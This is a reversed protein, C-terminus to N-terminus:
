SYLVISTPFVFSVDEGRHALATLTGEWAPPAGSGGLDGADDHSPGEVPPILPEGLLGADITVAALAAQAALPHPLTPVGSHARHAMTLLHVAPWAAGASVAAAAAIAVPWEDDPAATAPAGGQSDVATPSVARGSDSAKKAPTDRTPSGGTVMSHLQRELANGSGGTPPGDAGPLAGMTAATGGWRSGDGRAAASPQQAPDDDAAPPSQSPSENTM